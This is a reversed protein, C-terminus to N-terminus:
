PQIQTIWIPDAASEITGIDRQVYIEAEMKPRNCVIRMKTACKECRYDFGEIENRLMGHITIRVLAQCNSKVHLCLDIRVHKLQRELSKKFKKQCQPREFSYKWVYLVHCQRRFHMDNRVWIFQLQVYDPVGLYTDGVACYSNSLFPYATLPRWRPMNIPLMLALDSFSIGISPTILLKKQWGICQRSDPQKEIETHIFLRRGHLRKCGSCALIQPSRLFRSLVDELMCLYRFKLSSDKRAEEILFSLEPPTHYFRRCSLKLSLLSYTDLRDTIM